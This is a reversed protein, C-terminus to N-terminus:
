AIFKVQSVVSSCNSKVDLDMAFPVNPLKLHSEGEDDSGNSHGAVAIAESSDSCVGSDLM